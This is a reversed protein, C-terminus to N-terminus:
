WLTSRGNSSPAADSYTFATSKPAVTQSPIPSPSQQSRASGLRSEVWESYGEINRLVLDDIPQRELSYSEQWRRQGNGPEFARRKIAKMFPESDMLTFRDFRDAVFDIFQGGGIIVPHLSRGTERQVNALNELLKRGQRRSKNGTQFEVAVVYVTSNTALYDRWFRWDDPMVANLHSIPAVGAAHLEELCILQRKRNFLNDTRPVGLFHSFNPGIAALVDMAAIQQPAKDRRRYEWYKELASDQATGRMVIRTDAHLRFSARLEKPSTAVAEYTDAPLRFCQYTDLAVVPWNLPM